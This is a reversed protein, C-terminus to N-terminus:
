TESLFYHGTEAGHSDSAQSGGREEQGGTSGIGTIVIDM